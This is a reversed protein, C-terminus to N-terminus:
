TKTRGLVLLCTEILFGFQFRLCRRRPQLFRSSESGRESIPQPRSEGQRNHRRLRNRSLSARCTPPLAHRTSTNRPALLPESRVISPLRILLGLVTSAHGSHPAGHGSLRQAAMSCSRIAQHCQVPLPQRASHSRPARGADGFGSANVWPHVTSTPFGRSRKM